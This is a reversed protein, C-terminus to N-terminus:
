HPAASGDYEITSGCSLCKIDRAKAPNPVPVPKGCAPCKIEGMQQANARPAQSGSLEPAGRQELGAVEGEAMAGGVATALREGLGVLADTKKQNIDIEKEKLKLNGNLEALRIDTEMKLRTMELDSSHTDVIQPTNPQVKSMMEQFDKPTFVLGAEKLEKITSVLSQQQNQNQGSNTTLKNFADVLLKDTVSEGKGGSALQVGTTLADILKDAYTAVDSGSKEEKNGYQMLLMTTLADMPAGGKQRAAQRLMVLKKLAAEQKDEPWDSIEKVFAIDIATTDNTEVQPDAAKRQRRIEDVKAWEQETMRTMKAERMDALLAVETDRQMKRFAADPNDPDPTGSAVDIVPFWQDFRGTKKGKQGEDQGSM